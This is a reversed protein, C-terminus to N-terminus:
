WLSLQPHPSDLIFLPSSPLLHIGTAAGFDVVRVISITQESFEQKETEGLSSLVVSVM